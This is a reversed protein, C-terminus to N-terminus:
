EQGGYVDGNEIRKRQEYPVVRRRYFEMTVCNLVGMAANLEAYGGKGYYADILKTIAYNMEGENGLSFSLKEILPDLEKRKDRRIYPM